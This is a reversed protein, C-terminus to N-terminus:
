TNEDPTQDDDTMLTLSFPEGAEIGFSAAASAGFLVVELYGASGILIGPEGSALEAYHRCVRSISIGRKPFSLVTIRPISEYSVEEPAGVRAAPVNTILNGFRDVYVVEGQLEIDSVTEVKPLSLSFPRDIDPGLEGLDSGLSLRAAAPAFIDRGHFTASEPPIEQRLEVCRALRESELVLGFVGNDPGVFFRGGAELAIPRRGTGVGPDVVTLFITREPFFRYCSKLVFAAELISCPTVEHTVDVLMVDSNIGAIVGKMAGVYWDGTGFDTLVAIVRRMPGISCSRGVAKM